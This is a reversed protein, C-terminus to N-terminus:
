GCLRTFLRNNRRKIAVADRLNQLVRNFDGSKATQIKEYTEATGAAISFRIWSFSELCEELKDKTFLVGNTALAIDIGMKKTENFIRVANKNLLPEGEGSFIVSKLGKDALIRLNKLLVTENMFHAQYGIYDVACFVCRHNCAGSLGIEVEIPYISKGNLWQVVRQPHFLLKHTDMHIQEMM